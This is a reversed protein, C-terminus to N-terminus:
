SRPMAAASVETISDGMTPVKITKKELLPNTASFLSREARPTVERCLRRPLSGRVVRQMRSGIM